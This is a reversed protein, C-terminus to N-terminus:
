DGALEEELLRAFDELDGDAQGNDEDDDDDEEDDEDEDEDDEDEEDDDDDDDDHHAHSGALPGMSATPPPKWSSSAPTLVPTGISTSLKANPTAGLRPTPPLPMPSPQAYPQTRAHEQEAQEAPEAQEAQEAPEPPQVTQARPTAITAMEIHAASQHAPSRDPPDGRNRPTGQDRAALSSARSSTPIPSGPAASADRDHREPTPCLLVSTPTKAAAIPVPELDDDEDPGLDLGLGLSDGGPQAAEGTHVEGAEVMEEDDTGAAGGATADHTRVAALPSGRATRGREAPTDASPPRRATPSNSRQKPRRRGANVETSGEGRDGPDRPTQRRPSPSLPRASPGEAKVVRSVHSGRDRDDTRRTSQSTSGEPEEAERRALLAKARDTLTTRGREYRLNLTSALPQLTYSAQEEDWLLVMEVSGDTGVHASPTSSGAGTANRSENVTFTHAHQANRTPYELVWDQSSAPRYLAGAQHETQLSSPLLSFKLSCHSPRGASPAQYRVDFQRQREKGDKATDSPVGTRPATRTSM